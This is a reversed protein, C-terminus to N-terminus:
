CRLKEHDEESGYNPLCHEPGSGLSKLKRNRSPGGTTSVASSTLTVILLNFLVVTM